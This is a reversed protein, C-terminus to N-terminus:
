KQKDYINRIVLGVQTYLYEKDADNNLIYDYKISDIYTESPHNDQVTDTDKRLIRIFIAGLNRLEIEEHEFRCDSIVYKKEPNMRYLEIFRKVWLKNNVVQDFEPLEERLRYQFLETGIKQAVQRYSIGWRYDIEEKHNEIWDDNWLFIDKCMNRIPDAFGYRVFNLRQQLYNAVTDKGARKKGVLAIIM